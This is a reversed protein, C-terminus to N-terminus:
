NVKLFKKKKKKKYICVLHKINFKVVARCFICYNVFACRAGNHVQSVLYLNELCISVSLCFFFVPILTCILIKYNSRVVSLASRHLAAPSQQHSRRHSKEGGGRWPKWPRKLTVPRWITYLTSPQFSCRGRCVQSCFMCVWSQDFVSGPYPLQLFTLYSSSISKM